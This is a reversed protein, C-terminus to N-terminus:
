GARRHHGEAYRAPTVGTFSKFTRSLHSQDAFGLDLAVGAISRGAALLAKAREIRLQILWAYPPIGVARRFARILHAQSLGAASAVEKISVTRRYNARLYEKAVIVAVPERGPGPTDAHGFRQAFATLVDHAREECALLDDGRELMSHLEFLRFSFEEDEIVVCDFLPRGVGYEQFLQECVYFMRYSLPQDGIPFGTHAEAPNMAVISGPPFYHTAGRYDTAALGREFVGIAYGDHSHRAFRETLGRARFCDLGPISAWHPDSRTEQM